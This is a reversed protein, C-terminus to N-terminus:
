MEKWKSTLRLVRAVPWHSMEAFWSESLTDTNRLMAEDAHTRCRQWPQRWGWVTLIRIPSAYIWGVPRAAHALEKTTISFHTPEPSQMKKFQNIVGHVNFAHYWPKLMAVPMISHVPFSHGLIAQHFPQSFTCIGSCLKLRIGALNTELLNPDLLVICVGFM